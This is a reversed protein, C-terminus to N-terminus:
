PGAKQFVRQPPLSLPRENGPRQTHVWLEEEAIFGCCGDVGFIVLAEVLKEQPQFPFPYRNKDDGVVHSDNGLIRVTNGAQVAGNEAVSSGFFDNGPFHKLCQVPFLRCEEVM